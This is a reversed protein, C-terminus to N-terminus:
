DQLRSIKKSYTWRFDSWNIVDFKLSCIKVDHMPEDKWPFGVSYGYIKIFKDAKNHQIRGGGLIEGRLGLEELEELVPEAVEQHFEASKTGAVIRKRESTAPDTVEILVYKFIGDEIKVDEYQSLKSDAM